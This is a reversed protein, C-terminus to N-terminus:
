LCYESVKSKPNLRQYEGTFIKKAEVASYKMFFSKLNEGELLKLKKFRDEAATPTRKITLREKIIDQYFLDSFSIRKLIYKGASLPRTIRASGSISKITVYILNNTADFLSVTVEELYYWDSKGIIKRTKREELFIIDSVNDIVNISICKDNIGDHKLYQNFDEKKSKAFLATEDITVCTEDVAPALSLSKWKGYIGDLPKWAAFKDTPSKDYVAIPHHRALCATAPFHAFSAGESWHDEDPSGISVPKLPLQNPFDITFSNKYHDEFLNLWYIMKLNVYLMPVIILIAISALHITLFSFRQFVPLLRVTLALVLGLIFLTLFDALVGILSFFLLLLAM